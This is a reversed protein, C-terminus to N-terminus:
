EASHLWQLVEYQQSSCAHQKCAELDMPCPPNQIRLWKLVNLNGTNAAALCTDENWNCPPTQRRLWILTDLQGHAAAAHSCQVCLPTQQLVSSTICDQMWRLVEIQGAASGAICIDEDNFRDQTRLWALVEIHGGAAAGECTEVTWFVHHARLWQLVSLYGHAAAAECSLRILPCPPESRLWGLVQLHGNAAAAACVLGNWGECPPQQHEKLWQLTQLHGGTAAARHCWHGLAGPHRKSILWQLVLQGSEAAAECITSDWATEPSHAQLWLLVGMHGSGAAAAAVHSALACGHAYLRELAGM